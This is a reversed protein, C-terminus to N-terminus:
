AAFSPNNVAIPNDTLRRWERYGTIEQLEPDASTAPTSLGAMAVLGLFWAFRIAHVKM